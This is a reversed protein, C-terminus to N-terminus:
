QVHGIRLYRLVKKQASIRATELVSQIDILESIAALASLVSHSFGEKHMKMKRLINTDYWCNTLKNLSRTNDSIIVVSSISIIKICESKDKYM